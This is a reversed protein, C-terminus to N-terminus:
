GCWPPSPPWKKPARTLASGIPHQGNCLKLATASAIAMTLGCVAPIRSPTKTLRLTTFLTAGFLFSPDSVPLTLETGEYWAGAYWYGMVM